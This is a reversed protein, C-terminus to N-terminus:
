RITNRSRNYTAPVDTDLVVWCEEMEGNVDCVEISSCSNGDFKLLLTPLTSGSWPYTSMSITAVHAGNRLITHKRILKNFSVVLFDVPVLINSSIAGLTTDTFCFQGCEEFMRNNRYGVESRWFYDPSRLIAQTACLIGTYRNPNGSLDVSELASAIAECSGPYEEASYLWDQYNDRRIDRLSPMSRLLRYSVSPTDAVSLHIGLVSDTPKNYQGGFLDLKKM